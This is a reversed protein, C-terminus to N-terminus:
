RTATILGTVAVSIGRNPLSSYNVSSLTVTAAADVIGNPSFIITDDAAIGIDSNLVLNPPASMGNGFSTAVVKGASSITVTVFTGNAKANAHATKLVQMINEQAENLRNTALMSGINPVAVAALIAVVAITVLLEVITLGRNKRIILM